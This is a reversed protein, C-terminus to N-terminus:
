QDSPASKEANEMLFREVKNLYAMNALRRINPRSRLARRAQSRSLGEASALAAAQEAVDEASVQIGEQQGIADLVLNRKLREQTQREINLRFQSETLGQRQLYQELTLGQSELERVSDMVRAESQEQVAKRPVDAQAEDVVKRVLRETTLRRSEADARERLIKEVTERLQGVDEVGVQRAYEDDLDPVARRQVECVSIVFEGKKGAIEPDGETAAFEKAVRRQEGPRAEPVAENLEPFLRDQGVIAVYGHASYKDLRNGDVELFYDVSVLDGEQAPVDGANAWQARAERMKRIEADVHEPTVAIQEEEVKVGKYQGLTVQPRPVVSAQVLLSGDEQVESKELEADHLPEIGAQEIAEDYARQVLAEVAEQQAEERPLYREVLARPAKGKRFGPVAIHRGHHQYVGQIEEELSQAPVTMTLLVTGDPREEKEVHVNLGKDEPKTSSM